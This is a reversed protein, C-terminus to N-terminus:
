RATTGCRRSATSAHPGNPPTGIDPCTPRAAASRSARRTSCTSSRPWPRDRFANGGAEIVALSEPEGALAVRRAARRLSAAGLAMAAGGAAEDLRGTEAGVACPLSGLEGAWGSTRLPAGDVIFAAGIATGAMVVGATLGSACRPARRAARGHRRQRRRGPLRLCARCRWRPCGVPSGRCCTARWSGVPRTSSVPCPSASAFPGSGRAEAIFADLMAAFDAGPCRRAPTSGCRTRARSSCRRRGAWTSVSPRSSCTSGGAGGLPHVADALKTTDPVDQHRQSGDAPRGSGQQVARARRLLVEPQGRPGALAPVGASKEFAEGSQKVDAGMIEFSKKPDAKIM